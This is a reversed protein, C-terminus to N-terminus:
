HLVDKNYKINKGSHSSKTPCKETADSGRLIYHDSRRSTTNKFYISWICIHVVMDRYQYRKENTLGIHMEQIHSRRQPLLRGHLKSNVETFAELELYLQISNIHRSTGHYCGSRMKVTFRAPLSPLHRRPPLPLTPAAPSVCVLAIISRRGVLSSKTKKCYPVSLM